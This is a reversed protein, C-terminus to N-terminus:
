SQSRTLVLSSVHKASSVAKAVLESPYTNRRCSRNRDLAVVGGLISTCAAISEMKLAAYGGFWFQPPRRALVDRYERAMLLARALGSRSDREGATPQAITLAHSRARDSAGGATEPVLRIGLAGMRRRSEVKRTRYPENVKKSLPAASASETRLMEVAGPTVQM